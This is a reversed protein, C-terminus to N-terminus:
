KPDTAPGLLAKNVRETLVPSRVGTGASILHLLYADMEPGFGAVFVCEHELVGWSSPPIDSLKPFDQVLLEPDRIRKAPGAKKLVKPLM